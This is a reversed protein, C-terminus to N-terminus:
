MMCNMICSEVEALKEVFESEREVIEQLNPCMGAVM